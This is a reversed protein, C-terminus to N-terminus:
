FKMCNLTLHLYNYAIRDFYSMEVCFTSEPAFVSVFSSNCLFLCFHSLRFFAKWILSIHFQSSQTSYPQCNQVLLCDLYVEVLLTEGCHDM